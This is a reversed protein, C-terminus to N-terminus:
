NKEVPRVVKLYIPEPVRKMDRTYEATHKCISGGHDVVELKRILM